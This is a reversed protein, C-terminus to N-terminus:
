NSYDFKYMKNVVKIILIFLKLYNYLFFLIKYLSNMINYFLLLILIKIKIEKM